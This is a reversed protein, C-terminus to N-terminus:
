ISSADAAVAKEKPTHFCVTLEWDIKFHLGIKFKDYCVSRCRLQSLIFNNLISDINLIKRKSMRGDSGQIKAM